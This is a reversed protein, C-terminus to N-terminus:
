DDTCKNHRVMELIVDVNLLVSLHDIVTGAMWPRYGEGRRWRVSERELTLPSLLSDCAIGWSGDGLMLIHSGRERNEAARQLREPMILQAIDVVVVRRERHMLIGLHWDPQGPIQSLDRDWETISNLETLPVVLNMGRVRFPLCQFTGQGWDPVIEGPSKSALAEDVELSTDAAQGTETATDTAQAAEAVTRQRIEVVNDPKVPEVVPPERTEVPTEEYEAVESLLAALYSDVAQEPAPLVTKPKGTERNM